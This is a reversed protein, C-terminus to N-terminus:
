KVRERSTLPQGAECRHHGAQGGWLANIGPLPLPNRGTVIDGVAWSSDPFRSGVAIVCGVWSYGPILPFRGRSEREGRLMRLETVSSVFSFMTEAIIENPDCAPSEFDGFAIESPATFVITHAQMAIPM